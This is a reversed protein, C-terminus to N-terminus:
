KSNEVVSDLHPGYEDSSFTLKWQGSQTSLTALFKKGDKQYRVQYGTEDLTHESSPGRFLSPRNERGTLFLYFISASGLQSDNLTPHATRLLENMADISSRLNPSPKVVMGDGAAAILRVPSNRTPKVITFVLSYDVHVGTHLRLIEADPLWSADVAECWSFVQPEGAFLRVVEPSSEMASEKANCPRVNLRGPSTAQATVSGAFELPIALVLLLWLVKLNDRMGARVSDTRAKNGTPKLKPGHL